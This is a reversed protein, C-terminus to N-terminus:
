FSRRLVFRTIEELSARAPSEPLDSLRGQADVLLGKARALAAEVGPGVDVAAKLAAARDEVDPQTYADRIAARVDDSAAQYTFWVPLTVKGDAVDTGTSKGVVKTDGVM